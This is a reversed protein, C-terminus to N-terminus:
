PCSKPGARYLRGNTLYRVPSSLCSNAELSPNVSFWTLIHNWFLYLKNLKTFSPLPVGVIWLRDHYRMVIWKPTVLGTAEHISHIRVKICDYNQLLQSQGTWHLTTPTTAKECSCRDYNKLWFLSVLNMKEKNVDRRLFWAGYHEDWLKLM